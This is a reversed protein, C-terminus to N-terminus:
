EQATMIVIFFNCKQVQFDCSFKHEVTMAEYSFCVIIFKCLTIHAKHLGRMGEEGEGRGKEERERGEREYHPL